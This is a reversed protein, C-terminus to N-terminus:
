INTKSPDEALEDIGQRGRELADYIGDQGKENHTLLVYVKDEHTVHIEPRPLIPDPPADSEHSGGRHRGRVM